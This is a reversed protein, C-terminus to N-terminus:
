TTNALEAHLDPCSPPDPCARDSVKPPPFYDEFYTAFGARPKWELADGASLAAIILSMGFYNAAQGVSYFDEGEM